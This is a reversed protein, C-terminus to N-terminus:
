GVELGYGVGDIFDSVSCVLATGEELVLGVNGLRVWECSQLFSLMERSPLM